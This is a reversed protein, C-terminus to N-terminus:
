FYKVEVDMQMHLSDPVPLTWRMVFWPATIYDRLMLVCQDILPSLFHGLLLLPPAHCPTM